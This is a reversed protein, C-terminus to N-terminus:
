RLLIEAIIVAIGAIAGGAVVGASTTEYNQVMIRNTRSKRDTSLKAALWFIFSGLFIAFSTSFPLIFALGIGVASLPFRGRTVITIAQLVVGAIAGVVAAVQASPVLNSLGKTMVESVAKWVIASPFPQSDTILGSPDGRLFAFYFVPVAALAGAFIGLVHGIAQQRPKAGLMYGPKIDMLLNSANSAVEGTIAGATINSTIDGPAIVGYTVQTLKGLTSSPTISTLGTSNVSILSFIFVLPVAVLGLYAPMGFFVQGLVVVFLGIVPIGVVFVKMPLEIHALPDRDRETGDGRSFMRQFSSILVQPRSFFAFLASTTMMAAGGWLAWLTITKFSYVLGDPGPTGVIDGREIMWPVLVCYNFVAGLLLSMGTRIGMLGGAAMMVFDSELRVTLDKLPTGLITPTWIWRYFWGDLYHPIALVGLGIKQMITHSKLVSLTGGLAATAALIKGKFVGEAADGSHLAHMVVGAARGEPFPLQEDNIFRRKLPFAFLVGLISLAIMWAMTVGMPLVRDTIMMYAALSSVLPATMYGASTAISQMCNNELLSFERKAWGIETLVKFAAFALVVSTIGVGLTWGTKVGVYLNTLSLIAGLLMGTIATRLTLQPMDGRFVNELWWRDKQELTWTRIQEASLHALEREAEARHAEPDIPEPAVDRTSESVSRADVSQPV